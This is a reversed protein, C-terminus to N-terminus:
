VLVDVEGYVTEVAANITLKSGAFDVTVESVKTIYPNVLLAERVYRAAEARKTEATFNQGVLANAENGFNWTYIAFGTRPTLLAKYIWVKLAEKGTVFVPSGERFIPKGTTFDWAVEKYLPLETNVEQLQPQIIPFLEM